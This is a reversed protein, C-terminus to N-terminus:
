FINPKQLHSILLFESYFVDIDLVSTIILQESDENSFKAWVKKGCKQCRIDVDPWLDDFIEGPRTAGTKKWKHRGDWSNPCDSEEMEKKYWDALDEFINGGSIATLEDDNLSARKAIMKEAQKMTLEKGNERAKSVLMEATITKM